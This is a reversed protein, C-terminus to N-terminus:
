PVIEVDGVIAVQAVESAHITTDLQEMVSRDRTRVCLRRASCPEALQQLCLLVDACMSRGLDHVDLQDRLGLQRFNTPDPYEVFVLELVQERGDVFGRKALRERVTWQILM